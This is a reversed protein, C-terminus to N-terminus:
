NKHIKQVFHWSQAKMDGFIFTRPGLNLNNRISSYM